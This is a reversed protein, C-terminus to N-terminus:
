GRLFPNGRKEAGITSSSGHGPYVVTDDPLVMLKTHISNMIQEYSGGLDYRGIGFNFLTDGSFLVGHGLLCIGGASHGPTHIVLFHLDGIDISDGGHLLHDLVAAAPVPPTVRYGSLQEEVYPADDAHIAAAAGTASKVKLLASIHDTHGHTMVIMKITLGLDKVTRIIKDPSAGPDIIMGERATESGVVYCNSAYPGVVLNQIIM